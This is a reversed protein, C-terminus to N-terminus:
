RVVRTFRQIRARGRVTVRLFQTTASDCANHNREEQNSTNQEGKEVEGEPMGRSRLNTRPKTNYYVIYAETKNEGNDGDDCDGNLINNQM